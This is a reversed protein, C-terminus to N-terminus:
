KSNFYYMISDNSIILEGRSLSHITWVYFHNPNHTFKIKDENEIFEWTGNFNFTYPNDLPDAFIYASGGSASGDSSFHIRYKENNYLSTGFVYQHSTLSKSKYYTWYHCTLRKKPTKTFRRNDDPYKKECSTILILIVLLPLIKKLMTNKKTKLIFNTKHKKLHTNLVIM